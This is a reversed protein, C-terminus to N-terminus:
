GRRGAGSSCRYCPKTTNPDARSTSEGCSPPVSGRGSMEEAWQAVIMQQIVSGRNWIDSLIEPARVLGQTYAVQSHMIDNSVDKLMLGVPNSHSIHTFGPPRFENDQYNITAVVYVGRERAALVDRNCRQPVGIGTDVNNILALEGSSANPTRRLRSKGM